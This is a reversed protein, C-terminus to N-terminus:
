SGGTLHQDAGADAGAVRWAADRAHRSSSAVARRRRGGGSPGVLWSASRPPNHTLPEVEGPLRASGRQVAPRALCQLRPARWRHRRDGGAARVRPGAQWEGRVPRDRGIRRPDRPHALLDAKRMDERFDTTAFSRVCDATGKPSAVGAIQWAFRKVADSVTQQGDASFFNELFGEVFAVRDTAIAELWENMTAEDIVGGDAAGLAPPVAGALVASHLRETGHKGFYRAVEGGGMSFGVLTVDRLDLTDLVARLDGTLTDYDYGDYPRSSDGFGRRDYSIVRYGAAVLPGVQSEWSKGSLPWGHILVVPRGSGHDEYFIEVPTNGSMGVDLRPM